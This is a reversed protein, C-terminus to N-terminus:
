FFFDRICNWNKQLLWYRIDRVKSWWKASLWNGRSQCKKHTSQTFFSAENDFIISTDLPRRSTLSVTMLCGWLWSCGRMLLALPGSLSAMFSDTGIEPVFQSSIHQRLDCLLCVEVRRLLNLIKAKHESRRHFPVMHSGWKQPDETSIGSVTKSREWINWLLKAESWQAKLCLGQDVCIHFYQLEFYRYQLLLALFCVETGIHPTLKM